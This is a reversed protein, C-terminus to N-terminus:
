KTSINRYIENRTTREDTDNTNGIRMQSELDDGVVVYSAIHVTKNNQNQDSFSLINGRNQLLLQSDHLVDDDDDDDDDDYSVLVMM